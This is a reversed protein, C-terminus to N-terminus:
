VQGNRAWRPTKSNAWKSFAPFGIHGKIYDQKLLLAGKDAHCLPIHRKWMISEALAKWSVKDIDAQM